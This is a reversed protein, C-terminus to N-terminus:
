SAAASSTAPQVEVLCSYFTPGGGIDTLRESTLQNVGLNEASRKNWRVSPARLVGPSVDLSLAAVFICSGRDNFARVFSGNLIRRAEADRPHISLIATQKDVEDRHGFTSNLSDDNKGSVLELPYRHALHSDGFRSEM